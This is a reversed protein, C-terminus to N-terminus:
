KKDEEKPKDVKKRPVNIVEYEEKKFLLKLRKLLQPVIPEPIEVGKLDDSEEGFSTCGMNLLFHGDSLRKIKQKM